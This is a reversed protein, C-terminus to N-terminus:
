GIAWSWNRGKKSIERAPESGLYKLWGREFMAKCVVLKLAPPIKGPLDKILTPTKSLVMYEVLGVSERPLRLLTNASTVLGEEKVALQEDYNDDFSLRIGSEMVIYGELSLIPAVEIDLDFRNKSLNHWTTRDKAILRIAETMKNVSEIDDGVLGMLEDCVNEESASSALIALPTSLISARECLPLTMRRVLDGLTLARFGVTLHVSPERRARAQHKAGKPIYLVDGVELQKELVGSIHADVPEVLWNKSGECQIVFVDYDDKHAHLTQKGSPTMYCNINANGLLHTELSSRMLSLAPVLRDVGRIVVSKGSQFADLAARANCNANVELRRKSFVEVHNNPDSGIAWILKTIEEYGFVDRIESIALQFHLAKSRFVAKCFEDTRMPKILKVFGVKQEYPPDFGEGAFIKALYYGYKSTM